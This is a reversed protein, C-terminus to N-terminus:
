ARKTTRRRKKKTKISMQKDKHDQCVQYCGLFKFCFLVKDQIQKNILTRMKLIMKSANKKGKDYILSDKSLEQQVQNGKNIVYSKSRFVSKFEGFFPSRSVFLVNETIPVDLLSFVPTGDKLFIHRLPKNQKLKKTCEELFENLDNQQKRFEKYKADSKDKYADFKREKKIPIEVVAKTYLNCLINIKRTKAAENLYEENNM